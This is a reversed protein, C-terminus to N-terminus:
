GAGPPPPIVEGRPDVILTPRSVKWSGDAQQAIDYRAENKLADKGNQESVRVPGVAELITAVLHQVNGLQQRLEAIHADRICIPHAFAIVPGNAKEHLEEMRGAGPKKCVFCEKFEGRRPLEIVGESM